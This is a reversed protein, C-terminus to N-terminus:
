DQRIIITHPNLDTYESLDWKKVIGENMRVRYLSGEAYFYYSGDSGAAMFPFPYMEAYTFGLDSCRFVEESGTDLDYVTWVADNVSWPEHTIMLANQKEAYRLSYPFGNTLTIIEEGFKGYAPNFSIMRYAASLVKEGEARTNTQAIWIKSGVSVMRLITAYEDPKRYVATEHLKSDLVQIWQHRSEDGLLVYISDGAECIDLVTIMESDHEFKSSLVYNFEEDYRVLEYYDYASIDYIFTNQFSGFSAFGAGSFPDSVSLALTKKDIRIVKLEQATEESTVSYWYDDSEKFYDALFTCNLGTEERGDLILGDNEDFSFYFADNLTYM